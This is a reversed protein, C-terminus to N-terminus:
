EILISPNALVLYQWPQLTVQDGSAFSYEKGTFLDNMRRVDATLTGTAEQDSCNVLTIVSNGDKERAFAYIHESDIIKVVPGGAAGNWLAKNHSKLQLLRTFFGELEYDGWEIEDKDFFALRKDLGAEQGNYMIPIGEFTFALTTLAENAPGLREVASGAWSNEDHNSTFIARYYGAPHTARDAQLLEDIGPAAAEGKAIANLLHHMKWHYNAQFCTEFHNVVGESEALMFVPKVKELEDRAQDWFDDPVMGAMDCRFGDVDAARLWFKMSEIMTHRMPESAYNLDAVDSWGTPTGDDNLPQTITDGARTYWDPNSQTWSHDWATHNAVWDLIVNMRMQHIKSVLSRFDEFTGFEPNVKTFDAISYYSGLSGKRKTIGIPYIPMLWIVNVGMKKLRPLHEEFAKFTGEKTFQRINVEYLIANRTWAPYRMKKVQFVKTEPPAESTSPVDPGCSFLFVCVLLLSPVFKMHDFTPM